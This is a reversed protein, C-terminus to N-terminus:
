AIGELNLVPQAFRTKLSLDLYDSNLDIGIYKRGSERAVQGTTGSGSFPDLVVAGAPSGSLICRQALTPPFTAFHAEKLPATNISWVSRLPTGNENLAANKDYHYRDSKVLLFVFEHSRSPRDKVSEPMANPKGWVIDARLTWGDEQLALAVRWPIGIINKGSGPLAKKGPKRNAYSGVNSSSKVGPSGGGFGRAYSDGLNLWVTGSPTLVRRVQQFTEVLNSVYEAVTEEAGAQGDVGYERLGYYPPSTVVCDVSEAPMQSITEAADGHFLTVLEDKYYPEM